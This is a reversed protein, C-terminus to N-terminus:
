LIAQRAAQPLDPNLEHRYSVVAAHYLLQGSEYRRSNAPRFRCWPLSNRFVAFMEFTGFFFAGAINCFNFYETAARNTKNTIMTVNWFVSCVSARIRNVVIENGVANSSNAVVAIPKTSPMSVVPITKARLFFFAYDQVRLSPRKGIQQLSCQQRTHQITLIVPFHSM